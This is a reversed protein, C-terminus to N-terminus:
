EPDFGGEEAGYVVWSPTMTMYGQSKFPNQLIPSPSWILSSHFGILKKLSSSM